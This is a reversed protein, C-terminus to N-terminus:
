NAEPHIKRPKHVYVGSPDDANPDELIEERMHRMLRVDAGDQERYREDYELQAQCNHALFSAMNGYSRKCRACTRLKAKAM